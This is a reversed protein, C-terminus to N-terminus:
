FTCIYSSRYKQNEGVPKAIIFAKDVTLQVQAEVIARTDDKIGNMM